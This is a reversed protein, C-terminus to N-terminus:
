PKTEDLGSLPAVTTAPATTPPQTTAPAGTTPPAATTPTTPTTPTTTSVGGGTGGGTTTTPTGQTTTSVTGGGGSGTGPTTTTSTSPRVTTTTTRNSSSSSSSSSGSSPRGLVTGSDGGVASDDRFSSRLCAGEGGPYPGLAAAVSEALVRRGTDTPHLRDGSLIGPTESITSWDLVTVNDREAGLRNVVENVEVYNPRYETVTLLLVPRPELRDLIKVLEGEYRLANGDYNSGLFVLAADFDDEAAVDDPLVKRLVQNGFEVFRSPEAEIAVQWGLPVLTDCMQDGYRSSTSALISDGIMLIRNGDAIQGTLEAETGDVNVPPRVVVVVPDRVALPMAPVTGVGAVTPVPTVPPITADSDDGGSGCGAILISAAALAVLSRRRIMQVM